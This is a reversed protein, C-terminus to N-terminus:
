SEAVVAGGGPAVGSRHRAHADLFREVEVREHRLRALATAAVLANRRATQQSDVPWTLVSRLM